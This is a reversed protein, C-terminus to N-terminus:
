KKNKDSQGSSSPQPKNKAAEKAVQVQEKQLEVMDSQVEATADHLRKQALQMQLTPHLLDENIVMKREYDERAELMDMTGAMMEAEVRLRRDSIKEIELWRVFPLQMYQVPLIDHVKAMDKKNVFDKPHFLFIDRLIENLLKNGIYRQRSMIKRRFMEEKIEADPASSAGFGIITDPVGLGAIIQRLIYAQFPEINTVSKGIEVTDVTVRGDIAIDSGRSLGAMIQSAIARMQKVALPNDADGMRWVTLPRATTRIIDAIDDEMGLMINVVDKIPRFMSNGYTSNTMDRAKFHVVTEAPAKRIKTEEDTKRPGARPAAVKTGVFVGTNAKIKYPEQWYEIVRGFADRKVSVSYPHVVKLKKIGWGGEAYSKTDYVKEVFCEGFVDMQASMQQIVNDLEVFRKWSSLFKLQKKQFDQLEVDTDFTFKYGYATVMEARLWVAAALLPVSNLATEYRLINEERAEVFDIYRRPHVLMHGESPKRGQKITDFRNAVGWEAYMEKYKENKDESM